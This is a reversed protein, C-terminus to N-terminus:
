KKNIREVRLQGTLTFERYLSGTGQILFLNRIDPVMLTGWVPLKEVYKTIRMIGSVPFKNGM